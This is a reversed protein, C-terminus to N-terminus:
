STEWSKDTVEKVVRECGTRETEGTVTVKTVPGDVAGPLHELGLLATLLFVLHHALILAHVLGAFLKSSTSSITALKETDRHVLLTDESIHEGDLISAHLGLRGRSIPPVM